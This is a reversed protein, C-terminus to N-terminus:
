LGGGELLAAVAMATDLSSFTLWTDDSIGALVYDTPRVVVKYKGSHSIYYMFGRKPLARVWKLPIFKITKPKSPKSSM